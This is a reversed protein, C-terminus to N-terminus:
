DRMLSYTEYCLEFQKYIKYNIESLRMLNNVSILNRKM